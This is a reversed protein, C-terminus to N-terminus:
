LMKGMSRYVLIKDRPFKRIRSRVSRPFDKAIWGKCEWGITHTSCRGCRGNMEYFFIVAHDLPSNGLIQADLGNWLERSGSGHEFTEAENTMRMSRHRGGRGRLVRGNGWPRWRWRSASVWPGCQWWLGNRRHSFTTFDSRWRDLMATLWTDFIPLLCCVLDWPTVPNGRGLGSCWGYLSSESFQLLAFVVTGIGSPGWQLEQQSGLSTITSSSANMTPPPESTQTKNGPLMRDIAHFMKTEPPVISATPDNLALSAKRLRPRSVCSQRFSFSRHKYLFIYERGASPLRTLCSSTVNFHGFLLPIPLFHIIMASCVLRHFAVAAM